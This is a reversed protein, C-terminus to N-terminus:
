DVGIMKRHGFANLARLLNFGLISLATEAKVARLRRTLFRGGGSVRKITCFPHEVTSRRIRMLGPDAYIRAEMRDLAAQDFLRHSSRAQNLYGWIYLRLM